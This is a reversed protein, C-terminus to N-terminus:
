SGQSNRSRRNRPKRTANSKRKKPSQTEAKEPEKKKDLGAEIRRRLWKVLTEPTPEFTRAVSLAERSSLQGKKVKERIGM